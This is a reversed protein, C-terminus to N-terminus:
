QLWSILSRAGDYAQSWDYSRVTKGDSSVFQEPLANKEFNLIGYRDENRDAIAYIQRIREMAQKSLIGPTVSALTTMGTLACMELFDLNLDADVQETFAACDPDAMYLNLHLPLRMVSNVGNRVTWEFSRGSTDGGIRLISHIGASLHGCVNCGIVEADGAGRAVALYVDKMLMATTRSKDYMNRSDLCMKAGNKYTPTIGTIDIFSFDHKILDFGWTRIQAADTEIRELTYPHSPDLILGGSEACLVSERPIDGLTLLPRFWIGAKAGKEHIEAATDSMSGFRANPQWPGGIYASSVLSRNLQWGDDLIMYPRHHTDGTMELLYDTEVRVSERSIDGYAWYWNNVGFVPEKPLRPNECMMPAFRCAVRYPDEGEEGILEVVECAVLPEKLDTGTNGCTLNLFLTIGHPDAQFYVFANAGTKVGYCATQRNGM